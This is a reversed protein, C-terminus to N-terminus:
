KVTSVSVCPKNLIGERLSKGKSFIVEKSIECTSCLLVNGCLTYCMYGLTPIVVELSIKANHAAWNLYEMAEQRIHELHRFM